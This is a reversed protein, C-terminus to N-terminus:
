LNSVDIRKVNQYIQPSPKTAKAQNSRFFEWMEFETEEDDMGYPEGWGMFSGVRLHQNSDFEVKGTEPDYYQENDSPLEVIRTIKMRMGGKKVGTVQGYLNFMEGVVHIYDGKAMESFSKYQDKDSYQNPDSDNTTVKKSSAELLENFKAFNM